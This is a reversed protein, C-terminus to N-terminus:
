GNIPGLAIGALSDLVGSWLNKKKETIYSISYGPEELNLEAEGLRYWFLKEQNPCKPRILREVGNGGREQNNFPSV